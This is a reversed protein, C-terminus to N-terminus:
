KAERQNILQELLRVIKDLKDDQPSECKQKHDPLHMADWLDTISMYKDRKERIRM